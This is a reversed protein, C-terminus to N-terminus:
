GAVVADVTALRGGPRAARRSSSPLLPVTLAAVLAVSEFHFLPVDALSVLALAVVFALAEPENRFRRLATASMAGFVLLLAVLAPVGGDALVRMYDSHPCMARTGVARRWAGPGLGVVPAEGVKAITQADEWLRAQGNGSQVDFLHRLTVANSLKDPHVWQQRIRLQAAAVVALAAVAVVAAVQLRSRRTAAYRLGHAVFVAAVAFSGIWATRCRIVVIAAVPVLLLARTSWRRGLVVLAAPLALALYEASSNKNILLGSPPWGGHPRWPFADRADLLVSVALLLAAATAAALIEVRSAGIARVAWLVALGLVYPMFACMLARLPPHFSASAAVMTLLAVWGLEILHVGRTRQRLVVIVLAILPAALTWRPDLLEAHPVLARPVTWREAILTALLLAGIVVSRVISM